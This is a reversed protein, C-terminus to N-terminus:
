VPHRQQISQLLAQRARPLLEGAAEVGDMEGKLQIDMLVLNPRDVQAREIAEEGSSASSCVEYGLCELRYQIDKAMALEDEVILIRENPM